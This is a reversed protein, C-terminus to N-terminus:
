ILLTSTKRLQASTQLPVCCVAELSLHSIYLNTYVSVPCGKGCPIPLSSNKIYWCMTSKLCRRGTQPLSWGPLTTNLFNARLNFTCPLTPTRLGPVDRAKARLTQCWSSDGLLRDRGPYSLPVSDLAGQCFRLGARSVGPTISCNSSGSVKWITEPGPKM